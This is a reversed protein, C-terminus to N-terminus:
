VGTETSIYIIAKQDRREDLHRDVANYCLNTEGGVFWRVFPPRGFDCVTEFGKNWHIRRAQESWFGDRDEISRRHFEKYEEISVTAEEKGQSIAQPTGVGIGRM